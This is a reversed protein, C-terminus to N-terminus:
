YAFYVHQKYLHEFYKVYRKTELFKYKRTKQSRKYKESTEKRSLYIRLIYYIDIHAYYIDKIHAIITHIATCKKPPNKYM